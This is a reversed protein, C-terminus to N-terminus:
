GRQVEKANREEKMRYIDLVTAVIPARCIDTTAFEYWGIDNVNKFEQVDDVSSQTKRLDLDIQARDYTVVCKTGYGIRTLALRLQEPTANQTEDLIIFADSFTRGRMFQFPVIEIIGDEILGRAADIGVFHELCDYIPRVYPDLKEKATGPLFGLTWGAEVTPRSIIGKEYRGKVLGEVM